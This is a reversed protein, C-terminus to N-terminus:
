SFTQIPINVNFIYGEHIHFYKVTSYSKIPFFYNVTYFSTLTSVDTPLFQYRLTGDIFVVIDNSTYWGETRRGYSVKYNLYSIIVSSIKNDQTTVTDITYISSRLMSNTVKGTYIAKAVSIMSTINQPLMFSLNRVEENNYENHHISYNNDDNIYRIRSLCVRSNVPQYLSSEILQYTYGNYTVTNNDYYANLYKFDSVGELELYDFLFSIKNEDFLDPYNMIAFNLYVNDKNTRNRDYSLDLKPNFLLGYTLLNVIDHTNFIVFVKIRYVDIIDYGKDTAYNKLQTIRLNTIQAIGDDNIDNSM